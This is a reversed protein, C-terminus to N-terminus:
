TRTRASASARGLKRRTLGGCAGRRREHRARTRRARAATAVSRRALRRGPPKADRTRGLRRAPRPRAVGPQRGRRGRPRAWGCGRRGMGQGRRRVRDAGRGTLGGAHHGGLVADTAPRDDAAVRQRGRPPAAVRRVYRSGPHVDGSPRRGLDFAHTPARDGLCGRPALATATPQWAKRTHAPRRIGRHRGVAVRGERTGGQEPRWARSRRARGAARRDNCPRLRRGSRGGVAPRSRRAARRCPPLRCSDGRASQESRHKAADVGLALVFYPTM